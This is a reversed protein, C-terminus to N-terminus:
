GPRMAMGGTENGGIPAIVGPTGNVGPIGPNMKRETRSVGGM